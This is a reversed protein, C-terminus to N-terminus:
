GNGAGLEMPLRKRLASKEPSQCGYFCRTKRDHHRCFHVRWLFPIHFHSANASNEERRRVFFVAQESSDQKLVNEAVKAEQAVREKEKETLSAAGRKSGRLVSPSTYVVAYQKKWTAIDSVFKVYDDTILQHSLGMNDLEELSAQMSERVYQESLSPDAVDVIQMTYGSKPFYGDFARELREAKERKELKDLTANFGSLEFFSVMSGDTMKFTKEDVPAIVEYYDDADNKNRKSLQFRFADVSMLLKSLLDMKKDGTFDKERMLLIM